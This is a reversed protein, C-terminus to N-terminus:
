CEADKTQKILSELGAFVVILSSGLLAHSLVWLLTPLGGLGAWSTDALYLASNGAMALLAAAATLSGARILDKKSVATSQKKGLFLLSTAESISRLVIPAHECRLLSFVRLAMVASCVYAAMMWLLGLVNLTVM